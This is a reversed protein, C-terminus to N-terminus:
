FLWNFSLSFGSNTLTGGSAVVPEQIFLSSTPLSIYCFQYQRYFSQHQYGLRAIFEAGSTFSYQWSFGAEIDFIEANTHFNDHVTMQTENNGPPINLIEQYSTKFNGQLISLHTKGYLGFGQNFHFLPELGIKLGIGRFLNTINILHSTDTGSVIRHFINNVRQSIRGARLGVVPKISLSVSSLDILRSLDFDILDNAVKWITEGKSQYLSGSGEFLGTKLALLVVTPRPDDPGVAVGGSVSGTNKFHHQFWHVSLGWDQSSFNFGMGLRFAPKWKFEPRHLCVNDNNAYPSLLANFKIAYELGEESSKLYLAQLSCFYKPSSPCCSPNKEIWYNNEQYEGQTGLFPEPSLSEEEDDQDAHIFPCLSVFTLLFSLYTKSM